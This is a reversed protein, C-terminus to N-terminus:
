GASAPHAPHAATDAATDAVTDARLREALACLQDRTVALEDATLGTADAVRAQVQKAPGHLAAGAPTTDVEVVREDTTRRRRTVVGQAELRKILPSLTGSDMHLADGLFGVSVPGRQWLVLLVLYQSYTLGIADLGPRYSAVIARAASHLAFCLQADLTFGDPEPQGM